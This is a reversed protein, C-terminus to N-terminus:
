TSSWLVTPKVLLRRTKSSQFLDLGGDPGLTYDAGHGGDGGDYGEFDTGIEAKLGESRRMGFLDVLTHVAISGSQAGTKRPHSECCGGRVGKM